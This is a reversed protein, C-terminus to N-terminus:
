IGRGATALARRARDADLVGAAVALALLARAAGSGRGLGRLAYEVARRRNGSAAHAFAIQGLVRAGGRRDALVEPHRAAVYELGAAMASWRGAFWSTRAWGIRVLPDAIGIADTRTLARLLWEYDEGYSGPLAEDVLGVADFLRRRVLLTCPNLAVVRRRRLDAATVVPPIRRVVHTRELAVVISCGVLAVDPRAAFVAVQRELKRPLWEDDDDLFGVLEASSGLIGTNRAGAPGARRVNRVVRVTRNGGVPEPLGSPPACQDAVVICEVDGEYTQGLVSAVARRVLEPRDRTPVVVAVSPLARRHNGATV